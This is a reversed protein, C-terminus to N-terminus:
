PCCIPTQIRHEGAYTVKFTAEGEQGSMLLTFVTGGCVWLDAYLSGRGDDGVAVAAYDGGMFIPVCDSSVNMDLELRIKYACSIDGVVTYALGIVPTVDDTRSAVLRGAAEDVLWGIPLDAKQAQCSIVPEVDPDCTCAPYPGCCCDRNSGAMCEIREARVIARGAHSIGDVVKNKMQLCVTTPGCVLLQYDFEEMPPGVDPNSSNRSRKDIHLISCRDRAFLYGEGQGIWTVHLKWLYRCNLDGPLDMFEHSVAFGAEACPVIPNVSKTIVDSTEDDCFCMCRPGAIGQTGKLPEVGTDVVQADSPYAMKAAGFTQAVSVVYHVTYVCCPKLNYFTLTEIISEMSPIDIAPTYQQLPWDETTVSCPTSSDIPIAISYLDVDTALENVLTLEHALSGGSGACIEFPDGYNNGDSTIAFTGTTGETGPPCCETVGSGSGSSSDGGGSGSGSGSCCCCFLCKVAESFDYTIEDPDPDSATDSTKTNACKTSSDYVPTTAM